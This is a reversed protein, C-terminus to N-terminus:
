RILDNWVSHSMDWEGFSSLYEIGILWFAEFYVASFPNWIHCLSCSVVTQNSVFLFVLWVVIYINFFGGPISFM